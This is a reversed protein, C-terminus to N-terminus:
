KLIRNKNELFIENFYGFSVNKNNEDINSISVSFTGM